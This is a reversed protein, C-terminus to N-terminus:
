VLAWEKRIEEPSPVVGRWEALEQDEDDVLLLTPAGMVSHYAGEALGDVTSLDFYEVNYGDKVLEEAVQKM